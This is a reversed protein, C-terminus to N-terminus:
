SQWIKAKEADQDLESTHVQNNKIPFAKVNTALPIEKDKTSRTAHGSVFAM